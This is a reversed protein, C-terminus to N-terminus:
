MTPTPQWAVHAGRTIEEARATACLLELADQCHRHNLGALSRIDGFFLPQGAQELERLITQSDREIRELRESNMQTAFMTVVHATYIIGNRHITWQCNSEGRTVG